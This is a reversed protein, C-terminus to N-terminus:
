LLAEQSMRRAASRCYAESGDIGIARRGLDKAVRLVTGSGMFPDLVLGGPPVSYEILPRIIAEPKQTPHIGARHMSQCFMVSRMLRAGGEPVEYEGHSKLQGWHAPKTQRRIRRKQADFTLVPSHYIDAWAGRYFHVALLLPCIERMDGMFIRVASDEYVSSLSGNM